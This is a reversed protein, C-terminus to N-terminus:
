AFFQRQQAHHPNKDYMDALYAARPNFDYCNKMCATCPACHSNRVVRLPVQGYLREVPALPCLTGCWGSKGRFLLGGVFAALFLGGLLVAVGLASDQFFLRRGLVAFALLVVSIVFSYERLWRPPTLRRGFGLHRPLQNVTAFPCVNRWFGPVLFFVLPLLPVLVGWVILLARNPEALLRSCIGLAAGLAVARLGDWLWTPVRSQMGLYTPFSASAM